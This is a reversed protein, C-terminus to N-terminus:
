QCCEPNDQLYTQSQKHRVLAILCNPIHNKFLIKPQNRRPSRGHSLRPMVEVESTVPIDCTDVLSVEAHGLLQSISHPKLQIKTQKNMSPEGQVPGVCM